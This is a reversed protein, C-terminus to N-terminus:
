EEEEINKMKGLLSYAGKTVVQSKPDFSPPLIIETYGMESVGVQVETMTYRHAADKSKAEVYIYKHGNFEVIAEEPLSAVLASDKEIWAKLSMGPILERDEQELHCHVQVSRNADIERGILHVSAIRHTSENALMFLVRQGIKLKPVDNEFITLEAHLHETNVIEFLVDTSNVFAGINTNVKTVYGSIPAYLNITSQITGNDLSATTINLMQLKLKLADVSAKSSLYAAKAEQLTKVANVNQQSLLEQRKYDAELYELQSKNKLYDEQMQIYDAHQMVAIVQGKEVRTGQLLETSKVFGGMPASISVKSQPPIDLMGSAIITGSISRLQVTDTKIGATLFQADTLTVQNESLDTEPEAQKEPETGCSITLLVLSFLFLAKSYNTKM